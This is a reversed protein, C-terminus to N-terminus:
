DPNGWQSYAIRPNGGMRALQKKGKSYRKLQVFQGMLDSMLKPADQDDTAAECWKVAEYKSIYVRYNCERIDDLSQMM